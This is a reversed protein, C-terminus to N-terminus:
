IKTFILLRNNAPMAVDRWLKLGSKQAAHDIAEFDRIGQQAGREKLFADFARNSESTYQGDYNFPGYLVFFGGAQLYRGVGEIMNEVVPWAMIHATNASFVNDIKEPWPHRSVEFQVCAPLNTLGSLDIRRQIFEVNEACDSSQWCVHPLQEAFFVAHQGTGSGIEFVSTPEKFLLQLQALIPRKNNECAQSFPLQM